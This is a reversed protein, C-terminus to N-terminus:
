TRGGRRKTENGSGAGRGGRREAHPRPPRPVLSSQTLCLLHSLVARVSIFTNM